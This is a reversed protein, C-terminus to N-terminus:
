LVDIGRKGNILYVDGNKAEFTQKIYHNSLGYETTTNTAKSGDFFSLGLSTSIWLGGSASPSVGHCLSGLLGQAASFIPFKIDTLQSLGGRTGIWLSGERDEFLS